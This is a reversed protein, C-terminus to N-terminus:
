KTESADHKKGKKKGALYAESPRWGFSTSKGAMGLVSSVGKGVLSFVAYGLAGIFGFPLLVVYALGIFPAAAIKGLSTKTGKYGTQKLYELDEQAAKKLSSFPKPKLVEWYLLYGAIFLVALIYEVGKIHTTFDFLTNMTDEEKVIITTPKRFSETQEQGTRQGGEM